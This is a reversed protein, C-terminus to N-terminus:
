LVNRQWDLRQCTGRQALLQPAPSVVEQSQKGSLLHLFPVGGRPTLSVFSELIFILSM